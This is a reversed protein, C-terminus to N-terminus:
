TRRQIGDNAKRLYEQLAHEALEVLALVFVQAVDPARALMQELQQVVNEVQRLDLGALHDQVMRLESNAFRQLIAERQYALLRDLLPDVQAKFDIGLDAQKVGIAQAEPLDHQIQQGVRHLEGGVVSAYVDVSRHLALVEDHCHGIRSHAHRGFVPLADEVRELLAGPGGALGLAGPE